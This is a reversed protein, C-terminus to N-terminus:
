QTVTLTGYEGLAQDSLITSAITYRGPALLLALEATQGPLLPATAGISARNMSVMLNHTLRGYNHVIIMLLGAGARVDQPVVRYETLALRLTRDSGVVHLHSCAALALACSFTAVTRGRM